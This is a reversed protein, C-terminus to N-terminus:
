LDRKACCLWHLGHVAVKWSGHFCCPAPHNRSTSSSGKLEGKLSLLQPQPKYTGSGVQVEDNVPTKRMPEEVCRVEARGGASGCQFRWSSPLPESTENSREQGSVNLIHQVLFTLSNKAHTIVFERKINKLYRCNSSELLGTSELCNSFHRQWRARKLKEWKLHVPILEQKPVTVQFYLKEM